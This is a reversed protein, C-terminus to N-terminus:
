ILLIFFFHIDYYAFRTTNSLEFWFQLDIKLSIKYSTNYSHDPKVLVCIYDIICCSMYDQFCKYIDFIFKKCGIKKKAVFMEKSCVCSVIFVYTHPFDCLFCVCAFIYKRVKFELFKEQINPKNFPISLFHTFPQKKRAQDVLLEVKMRAQRVTKM